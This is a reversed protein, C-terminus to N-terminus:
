TIAGAGALQDQLLSTSPLLTIGERGLADAVGGILSDTNKLALRGLVGLLKLDPVIDPFIRRHKVQGAMVAERVRAARLIEICRGLQGLGVWHFEDAEGELAPEAEERVAMVVVRRGARRAAAAVMFPFRGNGAILGVPESAVQFPVGGGADEDEESPARGRRKLIVGRSSSRVFEVMARVEP